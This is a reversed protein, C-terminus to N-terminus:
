KTVALSLDIAQHRPSLTISHHHKTYQSLSTPTTATDDIFELDDDLKGCLEMLPHNELIYQNEKLSEETLNGSAALRTNEEKIWGHLYQTIDQRLLKIYDKTNM